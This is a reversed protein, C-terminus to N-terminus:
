FWLTLGAQTVLNGGIVVGATQQGANSDEFVYALGVQTHLSLRSAVFWEPRFGAEVSFGRRNFNQTTMAANTGGFGGRFATGLVAGLRLSDVQLLWLHGRIGAMMTTSSTSSDFPADSRTRTWAAGLRLQLGWVEGFRYLLSLSPLAAARAGIEAELEPAISGEVGLGLRKQARNVRGETESHAADSALVTGSLITALLLAACNVLARRRTNPVVETTYVVVLSLWPRTSNVRASSANPVQTKFKNQM